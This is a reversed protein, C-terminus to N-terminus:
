IRPPARHIRVMLEPQWVVCDGDVRILGAAMSNRLDAVPEHRAGRGAKANVLSAPRFEGTGLNSKVGM